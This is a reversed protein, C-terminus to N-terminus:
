KSDVSFILLYIFTIQANLSRTHYDSIHMGEFVSSLQTHGYLELKNAARRLRLFTRSGRYDSFHMVEFVSSVKLEQTWLQLCLFTRSGRYDSFHM